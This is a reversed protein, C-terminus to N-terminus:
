SASRGRVRRVRRAADVAFRELERVLDDAERQSIIAHEGAAAVEVRTSLYGFFAAWEGLEPALRALLEWVDHRGSVQGPASAIVTLAIREADRHANVYVDAPRM